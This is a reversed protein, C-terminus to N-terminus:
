RINYLILKINIPLIRLVLRALILIYFKLPSLIKNNLMYRYIKLENKYYFYNRRKMMEYDLHVIILPFPLNYFKLGAQYCKVWLFYDQCKPIIPYGGIKKIDKKRFIVSSHILPNKIILDKIIFKHLEPKKLIRKSNKFKEYAFSGCISIDLNADMYEKQLHFRENILVDGPDLRGILENSSIKLGHNLAM